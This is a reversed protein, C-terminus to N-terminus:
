CTKNPRPHLPSPPFPPVYTPFHINSRIGGPCVKNPLAETDVKSDSCPAGTDGGFNPGTYCRYCNQKKLKTDPRSRQNPDGVLM